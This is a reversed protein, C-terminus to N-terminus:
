TTVVTFSPFFVNVVHVYVCVQAYACACVSFCAHHHYGPDTHSRSDENVKFTAETEKINLQLPPPPPPPPPIQGRQSKPGTNNQILVFLLTIHSTFIRSQIKQSRWHLINTTLANCTHTTKNNNNNKNNKQKKQPPLRGPIVAMTSQVNFVRNRGEMSGIQQAKHAAISTVIELTCPGRRM